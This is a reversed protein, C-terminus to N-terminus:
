LKSIPTPEFYLDREVPLGLTGRVSLLESLSFPGLERFAGDVLGFFIDDGDFEVAYWTWSADPTFFKIVAIPDKEGETSGLPPLLCRVKKPVLKHKAQSQLVSQNM